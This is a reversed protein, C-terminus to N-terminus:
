FARLSRSIAKLKLLSSLTMAFGKGTLSNICSHKKLSKAWANALWITSESLEHRSRTFQTMRTWLCHPEVKIPFRSWSSAESNLCESTASLSRPASLPGSTNSLVRSICWALEMPWCRTSSNKTHQSWLKRAQLSSRIRRIKSQSWYITWTLSM